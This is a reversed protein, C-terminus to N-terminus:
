QNDGFLLELGLEDEDYMLLGSKLPWPILLSELKGRIETKIWEAEEQTWRGISLFDVDPSRYPGICIEFREL